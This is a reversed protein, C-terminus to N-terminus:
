AFAHGETVGIGILVTPVNGREIHGGRVALGLTRM